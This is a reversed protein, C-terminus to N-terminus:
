KKLQNRWEEVTIGLSPCYWKGKVQTHGTEASKQKGCTSCNYRYQRKKAHRKIPPEGRELREQDEKAAQRQRWQQQRTPTELNSSLFQTSALIPPAIQIHPLPQQPAQQHSLPGPQPFVFSPMYYQQWPNLTPYGQLYHPPGPLTSPLFGSQDHHPLSSQSGSDTASAIKKNRPRKVFQGEQNEPEMFTLAKHGSQKHHTPLDKAKPLGKKSVSLRPLDTGQLLAERDARKQRQHIWANVTTNNITVLVLNTNEQVAKSDELLQQLLSYKKVIAHAVQLTKGAADKPRNRASQYIRWLRICVCESIRNTDPTQAARGHTMFLRESAQVGPTSGSRKRSARWPGPLVEKKSKTTYKTPSKDHECLNDYLCVIHNTEAVSLATKSTDLRDVLYAALSDVKEWGPFGKTDHRTGLSSDEEVDELTPIDSSDPLDSIPSKQEPSNGSDEQCTIVHTVMDGTNLMIGCRDCQSMHVPVSTSEIIPSKGKPITRSDDKCYVKHMVVDAHSLRLGCRDCQIMQVPVSTAEVIPSKGKPITRSDDTCYVKHIVVDAHNLRLGCRDCQIMSEVSPVEPVGIDHTTFEIEMDEMLCLTADDVELEEIGSEEAEPEIEPLVSGTEADFSPRMDGRGSQALLYEVAVREDTPKGPPVYEPFLDKKLIKQGLSNINSMLRIDYIRTLSTDQISVAERTRNLNWRSCGEVMYM